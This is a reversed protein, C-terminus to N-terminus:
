YIFFAHWKSNVMYQLTPHNNFTRVFLQLYFCYLVVSMCSKVAIDIVKPIIFESALKSVGNSLEKIKFGILQM